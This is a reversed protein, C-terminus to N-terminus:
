LSLTRSPWSSVQPSSPLAPRGSSGRTWAENVLSPHAADEGGPCIARTWSICGNDVGVDDGAGHVDVVADLDLDLDVDEGASM